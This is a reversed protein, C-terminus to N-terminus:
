IITPDVFTPMDRAVTVADFFLSQPAQAFGAPSATALLTALLAAGVNKIRHILMSM